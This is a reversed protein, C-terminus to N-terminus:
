FTAENNQTKNFNDRAEGRATRVLLQVRELDVPNTTCGDVKLSTGVIVGDAVNLTDSINQVNVGSGILVPITPFNHKIQQVMNLDTPSGTASGTLIVADALGRYITEMALDELPVDVFSRGHKVAIDAFVLARSGSKFRHRAVEAACGQLIGQETLVTGTYVNVRVFDADVATAVSIAAVGDNRLVNIGMPLDIIQRVRSAIAAMAAVTESPVINAFFPLDGYNEVIVADIGGKQLLEGDRCAQDMVSSIKSEYRPSGPLPLLHIMGIIPKKRGFVQEFTM